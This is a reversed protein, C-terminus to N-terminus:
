ITELARKISWGYVIIRTYLTRHKIGTIKSWDRITRKCGKYELFHWKKEPRRNNSQIKMTTWRCNEKCYNGNNNIRDITLGKKYGPLMDGYFNIFKKWKLDYTIGRGGYNKYAISNLNDCRQIIGHWIRYLNHNTLGHKERLPTEVSKIVSWKRRKIRLRIAGIPLGSLKSLEKITYNKGKYNFQKFLSQYLCKRSCFKGRNDKIRKNTTKFKFNCIPCNRIIM